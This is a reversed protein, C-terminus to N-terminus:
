SPCRGVGTADSGHADGDTDHRAEVDVGSPDDLADVEALQAVCAVGDLHGPEVVGLAGVLQDEEVDGRARVLAVGDNVDDLRDRRLHENRQRDPAAHPARGVHPPQEVAACLDASNVYAVILAAPM